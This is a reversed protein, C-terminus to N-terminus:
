KRRNNRKMDFALIGPILDDLLVDMSAISGAEDTVTVNLWTQESDFGEDTVTM